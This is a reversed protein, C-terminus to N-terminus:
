ALFSKRIAQAVYEVHNKTMNHHCPIDLMTSFCKDTNELSSRKLFKEKLVSRQKHCPPFSIRTEVGLEELLKQAKDRTKKSPFTICYNFWSHQSVYGPVYPTTIPLKFSEFIKDYLNANKEKVKMISRLRKLQVLGISALVDNFRYNFGLQDHHYRKYQGHNKLKRLKKELALSKGLIIGGEGTTLNKNAFFSFSNLDAQSGVMEDKYSAGLSEAADSIWKIKRENVFKRIKDYDVPMGKMDVTMLFRTKSSVVEELNKISVNFTKPCCDAFVPIAGCYLISNVSSIYTLSPVIVEDGPNVGLALLSLHLSSTGNNVAVGFRAKVLDKVRDEFKETTKGQSIWGSKVQKFVGKAEELGISPSGIKIRM